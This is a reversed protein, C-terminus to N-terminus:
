DAAGAKMAELDVEREGQGTLVIIPGQCGQLRAQRLLDLGTRGSLRYDFLYVDHCDDAVARLGADYQDVWDLRFETGEIESLLARVILYDERDDEVLLVRVPQSEM